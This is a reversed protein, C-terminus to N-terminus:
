KFIIEFTLDPYIASLYKKLQKEAYEDAQSTYKKIAEKQVADKERKEVELTAEPGLRTFISNDVSEISIDSFETSLIKSHPLIVTVQDEETIIEMDNLDVGMKIVVEYNLTMKAETIKRLAKLFTNDKNKENRILETIDGDSYEVNTKYITEELTALESIETITIKVEEAYDRRDNNLMNRLYIGAIAIVILILVVLLNKAHQTRLKKIEDTLGQFENQTEQEM